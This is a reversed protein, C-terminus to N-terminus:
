VPTQLWSCLGCDVACAHLGRVDLHTHTHTRACAFCANLLARVNICMGNDQVKDWGAVVRMSLLAGM